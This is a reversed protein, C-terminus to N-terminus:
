TVSSLLMMVACTVKCSLRISVESLLKVGCFFGKGATSSHSM